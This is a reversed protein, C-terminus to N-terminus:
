GIIYRDKSWATWEPVPVRRVWKYEYISIVKILAAQILPACKTPQNITDQVRRLGSQYVFM